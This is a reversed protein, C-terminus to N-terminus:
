SHSPINVQNLLDILSVRKRYKIPFFDESFDIGVSLAELLSPATHVHTSFVNHFVLLNDNEAQFRSLEPTTQRPYGYIGMNLSSTSEGIYLIVNLPNVTEEKFAKRHGHGHFNETMNRYIASNGQFASFAPQLQLVLPGIILATAGIALNGTATGFRRGALYAALGFLAL